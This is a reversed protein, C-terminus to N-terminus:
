NDDRHEQEECSPYDYEYSAGEAAMTAFYIRNEAMVFLRNGAFAFNAPCPPLPVDPM